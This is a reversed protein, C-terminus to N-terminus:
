DELQHVKLRREQVFEGNAFLQVRYNGPAPFAIDEVMVDWEIIAARDSFDIEEEAHFIAEREEDADILRLELLVKGHADTL